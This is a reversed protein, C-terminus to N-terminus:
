EVSNAENTEVEERNALSVDIKLGESLQGAIYPDVIQKVQENTLASSKKLAARVRYNARNVLNRHTAEWVTQNEVEPHMKKFFKSRSVEWNLNYKKEDDSWVIIEPTPPPTQTKILETIRQVDTQWALELEPTAEVAVEGLTQDDRSIYYIRGETLGMGKMYTYVQMIHHPYGKLTLKTPDFDGHETKGHRWFVMSNVSKVEYVLPPLGDPFDETLRKIIADGLSLWRTDFALAELHQKVVSFQTLDPKGGAVFDLHGIVDLHSGDKIKVEKQEHRLIGAAILLLRVKWEFTKGADFIRLARADFPNTPTEGMMDWYRDYFGKGIESARIYNRPKAPWPRELLTQNHLDQITWNIM